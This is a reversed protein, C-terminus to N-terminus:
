ERGGPVCPEAQSCFHVNFTTEIATPQNYLRYPKFRWTRVADVASQRLMGPGSVVHLNEVTGTKSITVALVITGSVRGEKAIRPYVPQTKQILLGLAVDTPVTTVEPSGIKVTPQTPSGFVAGIAKSNDSGDINAAAVGGSQLPAQEAPTAKIHLRTPTQLQDAMMQAQERSPTANKPVPPAANSRIQADGANIAGATSAPGRVASDARAPTAGKPQQTTTTTPSLPTASKASPAGRQVFGYGGFTDPGSLFVAIVAVALVIVMVVIDRTSLLARSSTQAPQPVVAGGTNELASVSLAPGRSLSGSAAGARHAEAAQTAPKSVAGVGTGPEGSGPQVPQASPSAEDWEVFDTPLTEPLVERIQAPSAM